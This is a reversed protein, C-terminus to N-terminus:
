VSFMRIQAILATTRERTTLNLAGTFAFHPSEVLEADFYPERYGLFIPQDDTCPREWAVWIVPVRLRLLEFLAGNQQLIQRFSSSARWLWQRHASERKGVPRARPKARWAFQIECTRSRPCVSTPTINTPQIHSRSPM